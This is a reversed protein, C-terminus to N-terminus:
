LIEKYVLNGIVRRLHMHKNNDRGFYVRNTLITISIDKEFDFFISTGTFGTHGISDDSAFDPGGSLFKGKVFGITREPKLGDTFSERMLRISDEILIRKSSVFGKNLIFKSYQELDKLNSFLGAHGSAGGLARANEDHVVGKLRKGNLVETACVSGKVEFGTDYMLLDDFFSRANEKLSKNTIKEIIFGLLIFGLDSYEVQKDPPGEIGYKLIKEIAEEKKIEEVEYPRDNSAQLNSAFIPLWAKLGATHTLLNKLTINGPFGEIYLSVPDNISLFGEEVLKLIYPTTFVVKTLSALDFLTENTIFDGNEETKGRVIEFLVRDSKVVSVGIATAIKQKLAEEVVTEINM